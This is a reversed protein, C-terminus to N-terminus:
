TQTKGQELPDKIKFHQTGLAIDCTFDINPLYESSELLEIIYEGFCPHDKWQPMRESLQQLLPSCTTQTRHYFNNLFLISRFNQVINPREPHLGDCLITNFNGLNRSIQPLIDTVNLNKFQNYLALIQHFHEQLKLKLANAPPHVHRIYERIPVLVKLHQDQDVFALSTQILTTKCALVNIIPLKAQVLDANALGDPLLSLISLLEQAGPTM